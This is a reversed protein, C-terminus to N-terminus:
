AVSIRPVSIAAPVFRAQIIVHVTPTQTHDADTGASKRKSVATGIKRFCALYRSPLLPRRTHTVCREVDRNQPELFFARPFQQGRTNHYTMCHEYACDQPGLLCHPSVRQLFAGRAKHKLDLRHVRRQRRIRFRQVNRNRRGQVCISSNKLNLTPGDTSATSFRNYYPPFLSPLLSICARFCPSIFLCLFAVM